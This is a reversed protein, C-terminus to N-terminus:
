DVQVYIIRDRPTHALRKGGNSMNYITRTYTSTRLCIIKYICPQTTDGVQGIKVTAALERDDDDDDYDTYINYNALLSEFCSRRLYIM